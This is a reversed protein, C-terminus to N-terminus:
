FESCPGKKYYKSKIFEIILSCCSLSVGIVLVFFASVINHYSFPKFHSQDSECNRSQKKIVDRKIARVLIGAEAYQILHADILALYPSNKAFPLSLSQHNYEM